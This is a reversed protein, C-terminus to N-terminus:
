KLVGTPIATLPTPSFLQPQSPLTAPIPQWAPAYDRSKPNNTINVQGSGDANMVYIEMDGDRWSDFVLQKGDPSWDSYYDPTHTLLQSGSGDALILWLGEDTPSSYAIQVGDRSWAPYRNTYTYGKGGVPTIIRTQSLTNVDVIYLSEVGNSAAAYVIRTGDPSWSARPNAVCVNESVPAVKTGDAAVTYLTLSPRGGECKSDNNPAFFAFRTGDPSWAAAFVESKFELYVPRQDSGDANMVHITGSSVFAIQKGDPSWSPFDATTVSTLRTVNSGDSNMSYIEPSGDRDSVFAILGGPVPTPVPPVAAASIVPFLLNSVLCQVAPSPLWGSQTASIQLWDGPETRGTPTVITGTDLRDVVPYRESPGSRVQTAQDTLCGASSVNVTV